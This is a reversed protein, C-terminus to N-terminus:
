LDEIRVAGGRWYKKFEAAATAASKKQKRRAEALGFLSRPNNPNQKLDEKFVKEADGYQGARLFSGGLTERTPYFWDAPENYDLKDQVEVARQYARIARAQDSKAEAIRGHLIGEAVRAVNKPSNQLLGPDDTLAKQAEEFAKHEREAASIDGMRAFAVGRAFHSLVTSLPGPQAEPARVVDAWRGFRVLVLTPAMAFPEAPPMEKAMAAANAGFEDAMKKAEAFRGEMAYSASGFQLNHNYYMMPYIGAAGNRKIFRRDVVAATENAKAAGSYNGTRQYIHAPMHVLHGSEPALTRLRDASKLARQPRPSAEVAHIYYHNAGLHHPNRALVSELVKVIDETLPAPKGDISWFKWPRLDMMSEAYLTALDLDDPYKRWLEGMGRSYDAALKKLDAKPDNSYRTALVAILDNEKPSAEKTLATHVAEYAQKERDPDVDLNINPGLALAVGWWAMGLNPDLNGAQRFSRIAAEHNFGYLYAMGQDFFRQAEANKTSVAYHAQGVGPEIAVESAALILFALVFM